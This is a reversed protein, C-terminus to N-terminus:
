KESIGKREIYIPFDFRYVEDDQDTFTFEIRVMLPVRKKDDSHWYNDWYHYEPHYFYFNCRKIQTLLPIRQDNKVMFLTEDLPSYEYLIEDVRGSDFDRTFFRVQYMNGIFPYRKSSSRFFTSRFDKEMKNIALQLDTYSWRSNDIYDWFSFGVDMLSYLTLIIISLITVAVIIEIFTFGSYSRLIKSM